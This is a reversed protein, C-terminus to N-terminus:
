VISECSPVTIAATTRGARLMSSVTMSCFSEGCDGDEANLDFLLLGIDGVFVREGTLTM